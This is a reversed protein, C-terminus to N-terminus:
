RAFGMIMGTGALVYFSGLWLFMERAGAIQQAVMRERMQNQMQIQRELTIRVIIILSLMLNTLIMLYRNMELMFDQQKKFNDEMTKGLMSGM